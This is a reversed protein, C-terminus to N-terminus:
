KRYKSLIDMAQKVGAEFPEPHGNELAFAGDYHIDNLIKMCADLDVVGDGIMTDRLWTNDLAPAWYMGPRVETKKRLYDKVHVHKIDDRFAKMFEEPTENVFLINGFDACVGVNKCASRVLKYFGGFGEVGNVFAGQEEYICTIGLEAARNAVAIAVEAAREIEGEYQSIDVNYETILTHHFLPTGLEAAIEVQKILNEKSDPHRRVNALISYCASPLGAGDLAKKVVRAEAPTQPATNARSVTVSQFFEVSSFGQSVAFDAIANIGEIGKKQYM